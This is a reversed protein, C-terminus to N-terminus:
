GMAYEPFTMGERATWRVGHDGPIAERHDTLNGYVPDPIGAPFAACTPLDLGTAFPSRFHVCAGCQSMPGTTMADAEWPRYVDVPVIEGGLRERTARDIM